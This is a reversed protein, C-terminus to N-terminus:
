RSHFTCAILIIVFFRLFLSKASRRCSSCRNFAKDLVAIHLTDTLLESCSIFALLKHRDNGIFHFGCLQSSFPLRLELLDFVTFQRFSDKHRANLLINCFHATFVARGVLGNRKRLATILRDAFARFATSLNDLTLKAKIALAFATHIDCLQVTHLKGISLDLRQKVALGCAVCRLAFLSDNVRFDCFIRVIALRVILPFRLPTFLFLM